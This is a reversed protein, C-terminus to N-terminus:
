KKMHQYIFEAARRDADQTALDDAFTRVNLPRFDFGRGVGPYIVLRSDVGAAKLQKFSTEIVRRRQYQEDEGIFVLTPLKLQDIEPAYGYIQAPEPANPDQWHPYWSVYCALEKEQRQKTVAVKLSYYGGRTHSVICAKNGLIDKRKLLADVGMNFDDELTYDHEYPLADMFRSSYVAPALVVLGRAALRKVKDQILQDMGRRGHAFFVGPFKGPKEPRAVMARIELDGNMYTVWETKVKYNQPVPLQGEKWWSDQLWWQDLKENPDHARVGASLLMMLVVSVASKFM